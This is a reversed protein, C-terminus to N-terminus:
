KRYCRNDKCTKHIHFLYRNQAIWRYKLPGLWDAFPMYVLILLPWLMPLIWCLQRFAFFGGYIKGNSTILHLQSAALTSNLTPHLVQLNATAQFDVYECRGFLDMVKLQEVSQLCFGCHGDYVVKSKLSMSHVSRSRNIWNLIKDPHIFLLLQAPFLFFFITPVDLTLILVIHFVFGMYIASRRTKPNFLLFPLALEMVVIFIGIWYCFIPQSAMWEKILFHKTVGAAPYNMLYYVPNSTWWNGRSSIKCLATFFYTSAIQLQLLRQIFFPRRQEFALPNKKRLADISFYDGHYNTMCMLFLTVLLIDWSLTGIHYDNLAYFYYGSLTMVICSIQSFLGILFCFWSLVFVWVFLVVVGDSSQQVLDLVQHTFFYDNLTKLATAFYNDELHFFSPIVHFGTTLAVFIRFFSLGISPRDELFLINWFKSVNM